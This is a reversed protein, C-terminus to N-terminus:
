SKSKQASRINSVLLPLLPATAAAQFLTANLFLSATAAAQFETANLFSEVAIAPSPLRIPAPLNIRAAGM